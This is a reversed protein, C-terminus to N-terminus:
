RSLREPESSWVMLDASSREPRCYGANDGSWAYNGEARMLGESRITVGEKKREARLYAQGRIVVCSGVSIRCAM